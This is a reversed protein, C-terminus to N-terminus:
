ATCALIRTHTRVRACERKPAHLEAPSSPLLPSRPPLPMSVGSIVRRSARAFYTHSKTRTQTNANTRTHTIQTDPINQARVRPSRKNSSLVTKRAHTSIRSRTVSVDAHRRRRSQRLLYNAKRRPALAHAGTQLASAVACTQISM